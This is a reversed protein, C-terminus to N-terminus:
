KAIVWFAILGGISVIFPLLWHLADPGKPHDWSERFSASFKSRISRLRARRVQIASWLQFQVVIAFAAAAIVFIVLVAREWSVSAGFLQKVAVLAAFLAISYNTVNFQQQKFGAIESVCASYLALLEAHIQEQDREIPVM